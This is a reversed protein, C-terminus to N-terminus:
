VLRSSINSLLKIGAFGTIIGVSSLKILLLHDDQKTLDVLGLTVTYTFAALSTASGVLADGVIGLEIRSGSGPLRIKHEPCDGLGSIVGGIVGGCLLIMMEAWIPM